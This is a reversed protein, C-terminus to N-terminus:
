NGFFYRFLEDYPISYSGNGSNYNNSGNGSNYNNNGNGSNPTQAPSDTSPQQNAPTAGWTLEVKQEAGERYVTLTVTDGAAYKKKVVTLDEMTDTKDDNVKLIVDGMKLGAKAAAGDEEVSYVFVGGSFNYRFQSAMQATLTGGTIGMYPKNTIYGNTMVDVIMAHVDNMPIAFGVGEVNTSAYTSYKASVIGVVEGYSNVLPGGSNGPNISTDTQIMNFPVGEVYIARNVSSVMGGSMSFTLQGLPNGIALVRDGVNLKDSDGLVVSQLGEAEIKIVAIDYDEDGGIYRAEYTDGNYLTVTVKSAGDVVHYNTAIYGDGTLVFGSGSGTQQTTQGYFSPASTIVTRISVVSNVTAAYVESDTMRTAGDVEKVAVQVAPRNSVGIELEAMADAAADEAAQKEQEMMQLIGWAAGGGAAAGLLTCALVLAAIKLGTRKKRPKVTGEQVPQVAPEFSAAAAPEAAPRAVPEAAPQAPAEDVARYADEGTRADYRQGPEDGDRSYTHRYLNNEDNYM